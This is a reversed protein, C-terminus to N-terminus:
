VKAEPTELWESIATFLAGVNHGRLVKLTTDAYDNRFDAPYEHDHTSQLDCLLPIRSSIDTIGKYEALKELMPKFGINKVSMSEIDPTYLEDPIMHGVMCKRGGYKSRYACFNDEVLSKQGQLYTAKFADFVMQDFASLDNM